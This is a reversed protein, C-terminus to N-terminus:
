RHSPAIKPCDAISLVREGEPSLGSGELKKGPVRFIPFGDGLPSTEIKPTVLFGVEAMGRM